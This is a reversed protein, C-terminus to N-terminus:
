NRSPDLRRIANLTFTISFYHGQQWNVRACRGVACHDVSAERSTTSVPGCRNTKASYSIFGLCIGTCCRWRRPRSRRTPSMFIFGSYFAAKWCRKKSNRTIHMRCNKSALTESLRARVLKRTKENRASVITPKRYARLSQARAPPAACKCSAALPARGRGPGAGARARRSVARACAHLATVLVHCDGAMTRSTEGRAAQEASVGSIAM